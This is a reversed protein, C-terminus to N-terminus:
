ISRVPYRQQYLHSLAAILMSVTLYALTTIAFVDFSRFTASSIQQARYMMEAVGVAMATSSNQWLNLVQNILPPVTYRLSQPLVVLWLTQFFGFGLARGAEHQTAHVARLGSRIDEAMYAASYLVLAIVASLVEYDHSYLWATIPRPLFQPVGFYWFLLHALLPVNRTVEIYSLSLWQVFRVPVLRMVALVLALPLAFALGLLSLEISLLFGSLLAGSYPGSLLMSLDFKPM